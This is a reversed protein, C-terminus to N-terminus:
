YKETKAETVEKATGVKNVKSVENALKKRLEELGEVSGIEYFRDRVEYGAMKKKAILIKMLEELDFKEKSEKTETSAKSANKAKNVEEFAEKRFVSLGWDIYDMGPLKNKKDYAIIRGDKYVINSKDFKNDNRYVTMMGLPKEKDNNFAEVIANYDVDLYSDGYMVIFVDSLLPLAKRVAGGTGLLKDGDYSYQISMGLNSGDKFEKEIMSGLYGLCLVVDTFGKEKLLRLQYELFPKGNIDILSKPIKETIPRLRTALGGAIIVVSIGKM